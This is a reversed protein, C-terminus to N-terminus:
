SWCKGEVRGDALGLIDFFSFGESVVKKDCTIFDPGAYTGQSM